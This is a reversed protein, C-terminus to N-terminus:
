WSRRGWRIDKLMWFPIGADALSLTDMGGDTGLM